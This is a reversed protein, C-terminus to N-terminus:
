RGARDLQVQLLRPGAAVVAPRHRLAEALELEPRQDVPQRRRADRRGPVVGGLAVGAPPRCSESSRSPPLAVRSAPHRAPPLPASAGRLPRVSRIGHRGRRARDLVDVRPDHAAVRVPGLELRPQGCVALGDPQAPRGAGSPRQLPRQQADGHGARVAAVQYRGSSRRGAAARQNPRSSRGSIPWSRFCSIVMSAAGPRRHQRPRGDVRQHGAVHDVRRQAGLRQVVQGRVAEAGRQRLPRHAASAPASSVATARRAAPSASVASSTRGASSVSSASPPRLSRNLSTSIGSSGTSARISSAPTAMSRSASAAILSSNPACSAPRSARM